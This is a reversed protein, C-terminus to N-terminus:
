DIFSFEASNFLAHALNAAAMWDATTTRPADGELKSLWDKRFQEMAALATTTEAATPFRSYARLYVNEVQRERDGGSEDVVRGAMYKSLEWTMSGNMMHLAQTAVNSQRRETCNPTMPPQDFADMLSVPTQRRHLVYINRRYGDKGPKVIVEKDEKVEIDAAKGFQTADLRGAAAILSDYLTDADMRRLPMRSVLENNPDAGATQPDEVSAQRYARSTVMLRHMRKMTWGGEVFEVALWDLLKQNSPPLGSRGFNAVTPVLGRGFHRAWMQNVAVRATLPHNPQTLWKALALRRGSTGAFPAEAKYPELGPYDFLAPTGAEVPEGFGTPDGRRLLFPLSPEPNDALIRVHPRPKMKRRVADMKERIDQTPKRLEAYRKNLTAEDASVEARYRELLNRQTETRKEATLELAARVAARDAEDVKALEKDRVPAVLRNLGDRLKQLEAELPTNTEIQEKREAELALPHERRRPGKWEYPDYASQLIASMRYYDRQPLPDYKHDHCRACGVTLGLTSSTLVELEEALINMREAILGREYSNTPDPVTRLFGTAALRDLVDAPVTDTARKWDDSLEDGAIQEQLFRAYPKDANLSRIVYDRYRYAFPRVGDDQGFGESDAYGALDLWHQGWREGYHKSALLKDVFKEYADPSRDARYARVEDPTPPLGTLDLSVRRMLKLRDAEPSYRLGKSELASLLFSDIPNSAGGRAKPVTPRVPPQFAWHQRDKDRITSVAADPQAASAGAAIWVRVKEIEAETPLEVALLKAEAAPPMTENKMRMYLPSAEPKGPVLAPGSEGGKLRSSLTRLDLGGKKEGSGHCVVCRAQLIARVETEQVAAALPKGALGRNIWERISDSEEATLPVGGPPMQGTVIKDM